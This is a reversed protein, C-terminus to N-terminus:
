RRRRLCPAPGRRTSVATLLGCSLLAAEVLVELRPDRVQIADHNARDFIGDGLDGRELGTLDIEDGVERGIVDVRDPPLVRAGLDHGPFLRRRHDRHHLNVTGASPLGIDL